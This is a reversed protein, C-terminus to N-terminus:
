HFNHCVYIGMLFHRLPMSVFLNIFSTLGKKDSFFFPRFVKCAESFVVSLFTEREKTLPFIRDILYFFVTIYNFNLSSSFAPFNTAATVLLRQITSVYNSLINQTQIHFRRSRCYWSFDYVCFQSGRQTRQGLTNNERM